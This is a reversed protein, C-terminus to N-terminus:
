PFRIPVLPNPTNTVAKKTKSRIKTPQGLKAIRKLAIEAKSGRYRSQRFDRMHMQEAIHKKITKKVFEPKDLKALPDAKESAINVISIYKEVQDDSSLGRPGSQNFNL